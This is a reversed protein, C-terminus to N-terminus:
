SWNLFAPRPGPTGEAFDGIKGVMTIFSHRLAHFDAYRGQSDVYALFDDQAMADRQVRDQFSQLWAQRAAKL